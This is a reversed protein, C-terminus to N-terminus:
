RCLVVAIMYYFIYVFKQNSVTSQSLLYFKKKKVSKVNSKNEYLCGNVTDYCQALRCWVATYFLSSLLHVLMCVTSFTGIQSVNGQRTAKLSSLDIQHDSRGPPRVHEFRLIAHCASCDTAKSLCPFTVTKRTVWVNAINCKTTCNFHDTEAPFWLLATSDSGRHGTKLLKM